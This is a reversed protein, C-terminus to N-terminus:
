QLSEWANKRNPGACRTGIVIRAVGTDHLRVLVEYVTEVPLKTRWALETALLPKAADNLASRVTRLNTLDIM